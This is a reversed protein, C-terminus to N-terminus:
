DPMLMVRRLLGRRSMTRNYLVDGGGRRVTEPARSRDETLLREMVGEAVARATAQDPFDAVTSFLAATYHPGVGELDGAHFEYEGAPFRWVAGSGVRVDSWDDDEGPLLVLNVFWPSILIGLLRGEVERFGVSEVELRDNYIPLGKMRETAIRRHVQALNEIRPDM